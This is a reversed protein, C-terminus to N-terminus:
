SQAEFHARATVHGLRVLGLVAPIAVRVRVDGDTTARVTLGRALGAPLRAAAVREADAGLAHARAAARAAATAAWLAQGAVVLQWAVALLVVVFPLLAVLEVAAQGREERGRARVRGAARAGRLRSSSM